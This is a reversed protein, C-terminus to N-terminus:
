QSFNCACDLTKYTGDEVLVNLTFLSTVPCKGENVCKMACYRRMMYCEHEEKGPGDKDPVGKPKKCNAM